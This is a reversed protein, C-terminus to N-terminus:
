CIPLPPALLHAPLMPPPPTCEGGRPPHPPSASPPLLTKIFCALPALPQLPSIGEHIREVAALHANSNRRVESSASEFFPVLQDMERVVRMGKGGGGMAAKIIVPLGSGKVFEVAQEATTVPGDTGPVVPVEAKIAAARASTKDAFMNLNEVKPGVFTINNDKCAQAFEPSESLFGYGPHIAEVGNEKAIDIIQKIDLYASIPSAEPAKDLLFSQDAGWRHMSYRDEHGYIAVTQMNLETCARAIRVAIEARNAAMVKGFPAARSLPGSCNEDEESPAVVGCEKEAQVAMRPPATRLASGAYAAAAAAPQLLQSATPLRVGPAVALADAAALLALQVGLATRRQRRGPM